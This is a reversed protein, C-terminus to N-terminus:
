KLINLEVLYDIYNDPGGFPFVTDRWHKYKVPELAEVPPAYNEEIYGICRELFGQNLENKTSKAIRHVKGGIDILEGNFEIKLWNRVKEVDKWDRHDLGEHYFAVLPCVAGEFFKRQKISEPLLPKLEFPMNPNEKIFTKLWQKTYAGFDLGGDKSFRGTFKPPAEKTKNTSQLKM